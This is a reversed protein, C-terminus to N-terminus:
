AWCPKGRRRSSRRSRRSMRSGRSESRSHSASRRGRRKKSRGANVSPPERKHRANKGRYKRDMRAVDGEHLVASGEASSTMIRIPHYLICEGHLQGSHSSPGSSASDMMRHGDYRTHCPSAFPRMDKRVFQDSGRPSSMMPTDGCMGTENVHHILQSLSCLAHVLNESDNMSLQGEQQSSSELVGYLEELAHLASEATRQMSM